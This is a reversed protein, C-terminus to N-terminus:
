RKVWGVLGGGRWLGCGGEVVVELKEFFEPDSVDLCGDWRLAVGDSGFGGFSVSRQVGLVACVEVLGGGLVNVAVEVSQVRGGRGLFGGGYRVVGDGDVSQDLESCYVHM